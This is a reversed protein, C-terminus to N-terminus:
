LLTHIFLLLNFGEDEIGGAVFWINRVLLSFSNSVKDSITLMLNAQFALFLSIIISVFDTACSIACDNFDYFTSIKFRTELTCSYKIWLKIGRGQEPRATFYLVSSIQSHVSIFNHPIWRVTNISLQKLKHFIKVISLRTSIEETHCKRSGLVDSDVSFLIKHNYHRNQYGSAFWHSRILYNNSVYVSLQCWCM